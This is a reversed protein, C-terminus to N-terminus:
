YDQGRPKVQMSQELQYTKELIKKGEYEKDGQRLVVQPLKKVKILFSLTLIVLCTLRKAKNKRTDQPVPFCKAKTSMIFYMSLCIVTINFRCVVVNDLRVAASRKIFSERHCFIGVM